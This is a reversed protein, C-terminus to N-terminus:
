DGFRRPNGHKDRIEGKNWIIAMLFINTLVEVNRREEEPLEDQQVRYDIGNQVWTKQDGDTVLDSVNHDTIMKGPNDKENYGVCFLTANEKLEQTLLIRKVIDDGKEHKLYKDIRDRDRRKPILPQILEFMNPYKELKKELQDEFDDRHDSGIINGKKDLLDKAM